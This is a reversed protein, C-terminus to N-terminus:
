LTQEVFYFHGGFPRVVIRGGGITTTPNAPIASLWVGSLVSPDRGVADSDDYVIYDFINVSVFLSRDVGELVLRLPVADPNKARWAAVTREYGARHVAFDAYRALNVILGRSAFGGAVIAVAALASMAGRGRDAVVRVLTFIVVACTVVFAVFSVLFSILSNSLCSWWYLAVDLLAVALLWLPWGDRWRKTKTHDQSTV